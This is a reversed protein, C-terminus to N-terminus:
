DKYIIGARLELAIIREKVKSIEKHIEKIESELKGLRVLIDKLLLNTNLWVGLLVVILPITGYFTQWAINM